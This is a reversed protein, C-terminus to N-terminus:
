VGKQVSKSEVYYAGRVLNKTSSKVKEPYKINTISIKLIDKRGPVKTLPIGERPVKHEYGLNVRSPLTVLLSRGDLTPIELITGKM